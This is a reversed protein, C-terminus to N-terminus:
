DLIHALLESTFRPWSLTNALDPLNASLKKLNELTISFLTNSLSIIDDPKVLLGHVGDTIYSSIGLLDSAIVPLGAYIADATLGSQSATKYPLVLADSLKFLEAAEEETTFRDILTIRSKDDAPILNLYKEKSDYFEGAIVAHIENNKFQSEKLATLFVDLGKYPRILGFFLLIIKDEPISWKRRLDVRNVAPIERPYVPHFLTTTKCDVGLTLFESETQKSLFIAHDTQKFLEALLRKQFPFAEHPLVNHIIGVRKCKPRKKKVKKLLHRNSPIFFPHWHTYLFIEPDENLILNVTKNWKYPNYPHFLNKDALWDNSPDFQTKGPFLFDPYQKTYNITTCASQLKLTDALHRSFKSIGGRYPPFVSLFHIM